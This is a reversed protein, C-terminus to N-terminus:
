RRALAHNGRLRKFSAVFRHNEPCHCVVIGVDPENVMSLAVLLKQRSSPVDCGCVPCQLVNATGQDAVGIDPIEQGKCRDM